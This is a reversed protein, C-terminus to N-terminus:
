ATGVSAAPQSVPTQNRGLLWLMGALAAVQLPWGLV